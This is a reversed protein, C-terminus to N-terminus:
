EKSPPARFFETMAAALVDDAVGHWTGPVSRHRANPLAAAVTSSMAALEDGSSESSLVLTPATVSALLRHSTATGIACDYVLTHAVAEMAPWAASGRMQTMLEGPVGIGTLFHEVAAGRRGQAV